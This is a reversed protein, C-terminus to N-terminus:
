WCTKFCVICTCHFRKPQHIRPRTVIKIFILDRLKATEKYVTSDSPQRLGLDLALTLFLTGQGVLSARADLRLDLTVSSNTAILNKGDDPTQDEASTLKVNEEDLANGQSALAPKGFKFGLLM